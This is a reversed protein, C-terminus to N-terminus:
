ALPYDAKLEKILAGGNGPRQRLSLDLPRVRLHTLFAHYAYRGLTFLKTPATEEEPLSQRV